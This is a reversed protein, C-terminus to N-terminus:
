DCHELKWLLQHLLLRLDDTRRYCQNGIHWGSKSGCNRHFNFYGDKTAQWVFNFCKALEKGLTTAKDLVEVYVDSTYLGLETDNTM